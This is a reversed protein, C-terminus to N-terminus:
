HELAQSSQGFPCGTGSQICTQCNGPCMHIRPNPKEGKSTLVASFTPFGYPNDMPLGSWPSYMISLNAPIACERAGGHTAVYANVLHYSKTYTWFQKAPFIDAIHIMGALYEPSTIDGSVHWRMYNKRYRALRRTIQGFFYDLDSQMIATNRARADLCSPYAMVAKIDYCYRACQACNPCTIIPALSVNLVRGIKKNGESISLKVADIGRVSILRRYATIREDLKKVASAVTEPKYM